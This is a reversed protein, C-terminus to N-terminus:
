IPDNVDAHGRRAYSNTLTLENARADRTETDTEARGTEGLGTWEERSLKKITTQREGVRTNEKHKAKTEEKRKGRKSDQNEASNNPQSPTANRERERDHRQGRRQRRTAADLDQM